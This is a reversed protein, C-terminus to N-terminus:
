TGINNKDKYLIIGLKGKIKLKRKSKMHFNMHHLRM